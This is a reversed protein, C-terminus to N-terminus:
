NKILYSLLKSLDDQVLANENFDQRNERGISITWSYAVTFFLVSLVKMKLTHSTDSTRVQHQQDYLPGEGIWVKM